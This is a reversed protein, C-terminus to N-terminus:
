IVYIQKCYPKVSQVVDHFISVPKSAWFRPRRKTYVNSSQWLFAWLSLTKSFILTMLCPQKPMLCFGLKQHCYLQYSFRSCLMPSALSTALVVCSHLYSKLVWFRHKRSLPVLFIRARLTASNTCSAVVSRRKMGIGKSVSSVTWLSAYIAPPASMYLSPSSRPKCHNSFSWKVPSM